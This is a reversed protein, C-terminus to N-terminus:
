DIEVKCNLGQVRSAPAFDCAFVQVCFKSSGKSRYGRIRIKKLGKIFQSPCAPSKVEALSLRLRVGYEKGAKVPAKSGLNQYNFTASGIFYLLLGIFFGGVLHIIPPM